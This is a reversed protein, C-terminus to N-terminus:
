LGKQLEPFVIKLAGEIADWYINTFIHSEYRDGWGMLYAIIEPASFEMDRTLANACHQILRKNLSNLDGQDVAQTNHFALRKALLASINSSRQQKKTMYNTIYWTIINTEVGNMILKFDHNARIAKMMTPNWNNLYACFRKPGWAGTEKVWDEVSLPFPARRKCQLRGKIVILCTTVSCQHLQVTRATKHEQLTMAAEDAIQPDLPRLYSVSAEKPIRSIIEPTDLNDIDAKIVSKIYDQVKSHFDEHKLARLMDALSLAGKLWLLLHLHLTGRGQAEVTGIYSQVM